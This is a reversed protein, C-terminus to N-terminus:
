HLADIAFLQIDVQLQLVMGEIGYDGNAVM